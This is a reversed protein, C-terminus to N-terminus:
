KKNDYLSLINEVYKIDIYTMYPLCMSAPLSSFLVSKYELHSKDYHENLTLDERKFLIAMIDSIYYDKNCAKQIYKFMNATIRPEDNKFECVYKYGGLEIERVFECGIDNTSIHKVINIFDNGDLDDVVDEPVGLYVFINIWHTFFDNDKQIYYNIREFDRITFETVDSKISYVEGNYKIDIM